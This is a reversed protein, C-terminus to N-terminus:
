RQALGGACGARGRGAEAEGALAKGKERESRAQVWEDAADDVKRGRREGEKKQGAM